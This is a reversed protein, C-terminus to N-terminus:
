EYHRKCKFQQMTFCKLQTKIVKLNTIINYINDDKLNTIINYINDDNM